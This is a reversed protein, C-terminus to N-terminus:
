KEILAVATDADVLAWVQPDLSEDDLDEDVAVVITTVADTVPASFSVEAVCDGPDLDFGLNYTTAPLDLVGEAPATAGFAFQDILPDPCAGEDTIIIDVPDLLSDNAGHSVFVRGTDAELGDTSLNYTFVNVPLDDNTRYAVAAIDDGDNLMVGTLELLPEGGGALGIGIDYMAPAPLPVRGTTQGYELTGLAEVEVGDVYIAVATDGEAPVGPAFHAATVTAEGTPAGGTGGTGGGMGGTGSDDSCGAAALAVAAVFGLWFTKNKTM